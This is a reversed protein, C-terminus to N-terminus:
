DELLGSHGVIVRRKQQSLLSGLPGREVLDRGLKGGCEGMCFSPGPLTPVPRAHSGCAMFTAVPSRPSIVELRDALRWFGESMGM